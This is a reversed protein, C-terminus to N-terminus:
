EWIAMEADYEMIDKLNRVKACIKDTKTDQM